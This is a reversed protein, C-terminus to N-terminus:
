HYLESAHWHVHEEGGAHKIAICDLLHLSAEELQLESFDLDERGISILYLVDEPELLAVSM